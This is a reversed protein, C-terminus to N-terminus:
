VLVFRVISNLSNVHITLWDVRIPLRNVKSQNMLNDRTVTDHSFVRGDTLQNVDGHKMAIESM